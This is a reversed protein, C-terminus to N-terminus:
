GATVATGSVSTTVAARAVVFLRVPDGPTGYSDALALGVNGRFRTTLTVGLGRERPFPHDPLALGVNGRFRTILNGRRTGRAPRALGPAKGGHDVQSAPPAEQGDSPDLRLYPHGAHPIRRGARTGM